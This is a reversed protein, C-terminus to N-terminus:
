LSGSMNRFDKKQVLAPRLRAHVRIDRPSLAPHKRTTCFTHTRTNERHSQQQLLLDAREARNRRFVFNTATKMRGVSRGVTRGVSRDVSRGISKIVFFTM